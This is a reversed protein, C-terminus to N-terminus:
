FYKEIQPFVNSEFIVKGYEQLVHITIHNPKAFESLVSFMNMKQKNDMEEDDYKVYLYYKSEYAYLSTHAKYDHMRSAIRIVDEFDNFVFTNELRDNEKNLGSKLIEEIDEFTGDDQEQFLQNPDDDYFPSEIMQGDNALARTVTVEIGDNKAHVQIWLPGEVAFESQENIEDMMDWFLEESKERNNWVEERTFGREEIDVYSLFFKVTDENIREIEM